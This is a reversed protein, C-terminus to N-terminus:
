DAGLGLVVAVATGGVHTTDRGQLGISFGQRTTSVLNTNRKLM